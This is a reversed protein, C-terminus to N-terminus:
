DVFINSKLMSDVHGGIEINYSTKNFNENRLVKFIKKGSDTKLYIEPKGSIAKGIIKYPINNIKSVSDLANINKEAISFLIQWDGWFNFLNWPNIKFEESLELIHSPFDRQSILIEFKCNSREALNWISGLISDSNDTSANIIEEKGILQMEKFLPIPRLISDIEDSTLKDLGYQQAKLYACIFFGIRGVIVLLDGDNCRDRFIRRGNSLGIATGHCEFRPATRINGGANGVGFEIMADKMGTYFDRLEFIKLNDPAEVSNAFAVPTCGTSALDSINSVLSYWGRCWYSKYDLKYILPEPMVDTTIVIDKYNNVTVYACDDGVKIKQSEQLIPLILENIIKFEGWDILTLKEDINNLDENYSKM